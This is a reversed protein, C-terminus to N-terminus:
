IEDCPKNCKNCIYYQTIPRDDDNFDGVGGSRVSSNCCNSTKIEYPKGKHGCKSCTIEKIYEELCEDCFNDYSQDTNINEKFFIKNCKKCKKCKM